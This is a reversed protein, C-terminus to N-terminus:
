PDTCLRGHVHEDLRVGAIRDSARLTGELAYGAKEATRCSAPNAVAHFLQVRFLGLDDFAWATVARLAATAAGRGRHAAAIRYGVDAAQREEDINHLSITGAYAGTAADLISFTGHGGTSWDAAAACWRGATFLDVVSPAPNWRVVEVDTMLALVDAAEDEEPRRLLFGDVELQVEDPVM